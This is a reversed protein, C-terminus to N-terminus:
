ETLGLPGKRDYLYLLSVLLLVVSVQLWHFVPLALSQLSPVLNVVALTQLGACFSAVSGVFVKQAWPDVQSSALRRLSLRRAWGIVFPMALLGVAPIFCVTIAYTLFFFQRFFGRRDLPTTARYMGVLRGLTTPLWGAREEDQQSPPQTDQEEIM